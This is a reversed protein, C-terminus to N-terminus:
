AKPCDFSVLKDGILSQITKGENGPCKSNLVEEGTISVFIQNCSVSGCTAIGFNPKQTALFNCTVDEFNESSSKIQRKATCFDFTGQTACATKCATSIQDINNTSVFPLIKSWGITFGIVLLGLVVIGLVILIIANISLGQGKTGGPLYNLINRVGKRKM